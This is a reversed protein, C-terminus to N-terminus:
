RLWRRLKSINRKITKKKKTPLRRVMKGHREFAELAAEAQRARDHGLKALVYHTRAELFWVDPDTAKLKSDAERAHELYPLAGLLSRIRAERNMRAGSENRGSDGDLYLRRGRAYAQNRNKPPGLLYEPGDITEGSENDAVGDKKPPPAPQPSKVPATENVPQGKPVSSVAASRKDETGVSIALIAVLFLLVAAATPVVWRQAFPHRGKIEFQALQEGSTRIKELLGLARIKAKTASAFGRLVGLVAKWRQGDTAKIQVPTIVAPARQIAPQEDSTRDDETSNESHERPAGEDLNWGGDEPEMGPLPPPMSILPYEQPQEIAADVDALKEALRKGMASIKAALIEYMEEEFAGLENEFRDKMRGRLTALEDPTFLKSDELDQLSVARQKHLAPPDPIRNPARPSAPKPPPTNAAEKNPAATKPIAPMPRPPPGKKGATQSVSLKGLNKLSFQFSVEGIGQVVVVYGGELKYKAVRRAIEVAHRQPSGVREGILESLNVKHGTPFCGQSFVVLRDKAGLDIVGHEVQPLFDGMGDLSGLLGGTNYDKTIQDIGNKNLLYQRSQGRHAIHAGGPFLVIVELNCSIAPLTDQIGVASFWPDKSSKGNLEAINQKEGGGVKQAHLATDVVIPDTGVISQRIFSGFDRDAASVKGKQDTSSLYNSLHSALVEAATAAVEARLEMSPAPPQKLGGALARTEALIACGLEADIRNEVNARSEPTGVPAIGIRSSRVKVQQQKAM